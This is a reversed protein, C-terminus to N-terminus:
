AKVVKYLRGGVRVVYVGPAWSGSEIAMDGSGQGSAILHGYLDFIDYRVETHNPNLVFLRDSFPNPGITLDPDSPTQTSTTNACANEIFGLSDINPWPSPFGHHDYIGFPALGAGEICAFPYGLVIVKRNMGLITDYRIDGVVSNWGYVSLTDGIQVNFSAVMFEVDSDLTRTFVKQELTDERAYGVLGLNDNWIELYEKGDIITDCALYYRFYTYSGLGYYLSITWEKGEVVTPIYQAQAVPM